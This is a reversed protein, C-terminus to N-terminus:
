LGCKYRYRSWRSFVEAPTRRKYKNEDRDLGIPPERSLLPRRSNAISIADFLFLKTFSLPIKDGRFM